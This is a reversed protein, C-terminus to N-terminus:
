FHFQTPSATPYATQIQTAQAAINRLMDYSTETMYSNVTDSISPAATTDTSILRQTIRSNTFGYQNALLPSGTSQTMFGGTSVSSCQTSTKLLLDRSKKRAFFWAAIGTALMLAAGGAAAGAIVATSVGKNESGPNGNNTNSITTSSTSYISNM